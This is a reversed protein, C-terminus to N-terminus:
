RLGLNEPSDRSHGQGLQEATLPRYAIALVRFAQESFRDVVACGFTISVTSSDCSRCVVLRRRGNTIHSRDQLSLERVAVSGPVGDASYGYRCPSSSSVPTHAVHCVFCVLAIDSSTAVFM